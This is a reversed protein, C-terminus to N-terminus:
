PCARRLRQLTRRNESREQILAREPENVDKVFGKMQEKAEHLWRQIESRHTSDMVVGPPLENLRPPQLPVEGFCFQVEEVTDLYNNGSGDNGGVVVIKRSRASYFASFEQRASKMSPLLRWEQQQGLPDQELDLVEVSSVVQSGNQGGMAVIFRNEVQSLFTQDDPM